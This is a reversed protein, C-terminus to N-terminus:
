SVFMPKEQVSANRRFEIINLFSLSFQMQNVGKALHKPSRSHSCESNVNALFVLNFASTMAYFAKQVM